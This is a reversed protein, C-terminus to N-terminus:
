RGDLLITWARVDKTRLLGGSALPHDGFVSRLDKEDAAEVALLAVEDDSITSIPGGLVVVGHEVLGDFFQAHEDWGPQEGIARDHLWNPGKATTVAFMAM